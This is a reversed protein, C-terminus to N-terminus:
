EQHEVEQMGATTRMWAGAAYWEDQVYCGHRKYPLALRKEPHNFVGPHLPKQCSGDWM